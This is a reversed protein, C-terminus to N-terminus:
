KSIEEENLENINYENGNDNFYNILAQGVGNSMDM